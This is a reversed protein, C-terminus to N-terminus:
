SLIETTQRCKCFCVRRNSDWRRQNARVIKSPWELFDHISIANWVVFFDIWSYKSTYGEWKEKSDHKSIDAM